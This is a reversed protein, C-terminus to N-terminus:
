RLALGEAPSFPSRRMLVHTEVLAANPQCGIAAARQM